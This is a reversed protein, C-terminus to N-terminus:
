TSSAPLSPKRSSSSDASRALPSGSRRPSNSARLRKARLLKKKQHKMIKTVVARQIEYERRLEEMRREIAERGDKEITLLTVNSPMRATTRSMPESCLLSGQGSESQVSNGDKGDKGVSRSRFKDSLSRSEQVCSTSNDDSEIAKLEKNSVADKVTVSANREGIHEEVPLSTESPIKMASKKKDSKQVSSKKMKGKTEKLSKDLIANENEVFTSPTEITSADQEETNQKESARESQEVVTSPKSPFDSDKLSTQPDINNGARTTRLRKSKLEEGASSEEVPNNEKTNEISRIEKMRSDKESKVEGIPQEALDKVKRKSAAGPEELVESESIWEDYRRNWGLYHVKYSPGYKKRGGNKMQAGIIRAKYPLSDFSSVCQIVTGVSYQFNGGGRGGKSDRLSEGLSSEFEMSSADSASRAEGDKVEGKEAKAGKGKRSSNTSKGKVSTGIHKADSVYGPLGAKEFPLIYRSYSTKVNHSASTSIVSLNLARYVNKWQLNSTVKDFGGNNQVLTYLKFLNLESHGLTPSKTIPTNQEKMFKYLADVFLTNKESEGDDVAIVDSGEGDNEEKKIGGNVRNFKESLNKGVRERSGARWLPWKMEDKLNGNEQYDVADWVCPITDYKPNSVKYSWFPETNRNFIKMDKLPVVSFAHDEFYRVVRHGRKPAGMFDECESAPVTLAPWWYRKEKAKTNTELSDVFVCVKSEQEAILKDGNGLAHIDKGASEVKERLSRRTRGGDGPTSVPSPSPSASMRPSDRPSPRLRGPVVPAGFKEPDALPVNNFTQENAFHREGKLVLSTRKMIKRDADDFEVTYSSSDVIKLIKGTLYRQDDPHKAEVSVGQDIPKNSKIDSLQVSHSGKGKEFTVRINLKVDVAIIKAQCFAGKYKASVETGITLLLGEAPVPSSM